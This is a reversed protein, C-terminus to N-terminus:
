PLTQYLAEYSAYRTRAVEGQAVGAVVACGQEKLHACNGFQCHPALVAIDPFYQALDDRSLGSLGFTRIGPTDIIVGGDKLRVLTAQTTTHRGEHKRTSVDATRLELGPQAAALLSSKGVGSLGALVSVRNHIVERLADIGIGEQASTLIVEIGLEQYPQLAAACAAYDEVLDVKNVCIVAKLNDRAAGVLYRDVLEFWIAPERWSAVILVQDANAVIIQRVHPNDVSPRALVSHRPAVAEIMGGGAGDGRFEVRDGVAVVNTYGSDEARLHNRIRCLVTREGTDVRCMGTSVETVLGEEYESVSTDSSPVPQTRQAATQAVARRRDRDDRPMIREHLVVDDDTESWREVKRQQKPAKQQKRAAQHQQRERAKEHNKM